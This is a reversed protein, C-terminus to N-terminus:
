LFTVRCGQTGCQASPTSLFSSMSAQRFDDGSEEDSLNLLEALGVVFWFFFFFSMTSSLGEGRMHAEATVARFVSAGEASDM